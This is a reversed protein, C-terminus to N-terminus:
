LPAADVTSGRRDFEFHRVQWWSGSIPKCYHFSIAFLRAYRIESQGIRKASAVALRPAPATASRLRRLHTPLAGGSVPRASRWCTSWIKKFDPNKASVEAYVQYAAKM